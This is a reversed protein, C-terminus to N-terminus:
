EGIPGLGTPVPKPRSRGLSRLNNSTRCVVRWLHVLNLLLSINLQCMNLLFQTKRDNPNLRLAENLCNVVFDANPQKLLYDVGVHRWLEAQNSLPLDRFQRSNLILKQKVPQDALLDILINFFFQRRTKLSLEAFWDSNLIKMRGYLLDDTRKKRGSTRTINTFHVRYKCTLQDLYGFKGVRALSIWFDWDPGIVLKEDFRIGHQHIISRRTMTCVPVTIVGPILVLPELINGTYVGPRHDSLHSITNGNEDFVLGDAYAVDYDPHRELFNSLDALANPLYLDDADLFAIYQGRAHELGVNRARAEGANEQRIRIIRHDSYRDLIEPTSDTSGDDVVILEWFPYDQDILSNIAEGIYAEGNYVPM